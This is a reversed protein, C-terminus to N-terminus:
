GLRAQLRLLIARLRNALVYMSCKCNHPLLINQTILIKACLHISPLKKARRDSEAGANAQRAKNLKQFVERDHYRVNASRKIPLASPKHLTGAVRCHTEHRSGLQYHRLACGRACTQRGDAYSKGTHEYTDM